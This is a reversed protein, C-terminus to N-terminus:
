PGAAAQVALALRDVEAPDPSTFTVQRGDTTDLVLRYLRIRHAAVVDILSSLAVATFFATVLLFRPRSDGHVVLVVFLAAM